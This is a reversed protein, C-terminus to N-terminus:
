RLPRVRLPDGGIAAPVEGPLSSRQLVRQAAALQIDDRDRAILDGRKLVIGLEVDHLRRGVADLQHRHVEGVLSQGVDAHALGDGQGQLSLLELGHEQRRVGACPRM